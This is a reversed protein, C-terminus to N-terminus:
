RIKRVKPRSVVNETPTAKYVRSLCAYTLQLFREQAMNEVM